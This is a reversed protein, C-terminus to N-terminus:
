MKKYKGDRKSLDNATLAAWYAKTKKNGDSLKKGAKRADPHELTLLAHLIRECVFLPQGNRFNKPNKFATTLVQIDSKTVTRKRIQAFQEAAEARVVVAPDELGDKVLENCWAIDAMGGCRRVWGLRWQWAWDSLKINKSQHFTWIKELEPKTLIQFRQWDGQSPSTKIDLELPSKQLLLPTTGHSTPQGFGEVQWGLLLYAACFIVKM